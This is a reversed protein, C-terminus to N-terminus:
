QNIKLFNLKLFKISNKDDKIFNKNRKILNLHSQTNKSQFAITRYLFKTILCELFIELNQFVEELSQALIKDLIKIISLDQTLNM